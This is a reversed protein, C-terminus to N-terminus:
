AYTVLKSCLCLVMPNVDHKFPQLGQRMKVNPMRSPQQSCQTSLACVHSTCSALLPPAEMVVAGFLM